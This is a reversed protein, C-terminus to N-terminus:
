PEGTEIMNEMKQLGERAARIAEESITRQTGAAVICCRLALREYHTPMPEAPPFLRLYLQRIM